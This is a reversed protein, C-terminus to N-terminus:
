ARRVGGERECASGVERELSPKRVPAAGPGGMRILFRHEPTFHFELMRAFCTETRYEPTPQLEPATGVRVTKWCDGSLEGGISM